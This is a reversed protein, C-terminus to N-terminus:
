FFLRCLQSWPCALCRETPLVMEVQSGLRELRLRAAPTLRTPLDAINQCSSVYDYWVHCQMRATLLGTLFVIRNIDIDASSGKIFSYLAGQNDLYHSLLRGRFFDSPFSLYVTLAAVAELQGIYTKRARHLEFIHLLWPPTAASAWFGGLEPHIVVFGLWSGDAEWSADSFIVVPPRSDPQVPIRFPPLLQVVLRLSALCDLLQTDLVSPSCDHQHSRLVSLPAVGIRGFVPCLCFRLKGYLSSAEASTLSGKAVVADILAIASARRSDTPGITVYGHVSAARWDTLVGCYVTLESWPSHKDLSFHLGLSEHLQNHVLQGSGAAFSPETVQEDDYYFTVPVGFFLRSFACIPAPVRNWNLVASALGFNHGPVCWVTCEWADSADSPPKAVMVATYAPQLSPIRRYAAFMDDTGGGIQIPHVPDDPPLGLQHFRLGIRLPSDPRDCCITESTSMGLANHGSAAADDICRWKNKQTIAFRPMPRWCGFGYAHEWVGPRQNLDSISFPGSILGTLSEELTRRWCARAMDPDRRAAALVRQRCAYVWSANTKAFASFPMAAPRIVPRWVGSDPISGVVPFGRVLCRLLDSDPWQLADLVAALLAYHICHLEDVGVDSLALSPITRRGIDLAMARAIARASPSMLEEISRSLPRLSASVHQFICMRRQREAACQSGLRWVFQVACELDYPLMLDPSAAPHPKLVADRIFEEPSGHQSASPFTPHQSAQDFPALSQKTTPRSYRARTLLM